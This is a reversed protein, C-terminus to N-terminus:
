LLIYYFYRRFEMSRVFDNNGLALSSMHFLLNSNRQKRSWYGDELICASLPKAVKLEGNNRRSICPVKTLMHSQTQSPFVSSFIDQLFAFFIAGPNMDVSFVSFGCDWGTRWGHQHPHLERWGACRLYSSM